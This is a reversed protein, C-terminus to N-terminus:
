QMLPKTTYCKYTYKDTGSLCAIYSAARRYLTRITSAIEAIEEIGYLEVLIKWDNYLGYESVRQVIFIRKEEPNTKSIDVDWFLHKSFQNLLSSM